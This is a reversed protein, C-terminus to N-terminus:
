GGKATQAAQRPPDHFLFLIAAAATLALLAGAVAAAHFAHLLTEGADGAGRRGPRHYGLGLFNAGDAFAPM